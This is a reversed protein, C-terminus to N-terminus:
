HYLQYLISHFSLHLDIEKQTLNKNKLYTLFEERDKLMKNLQKNNM